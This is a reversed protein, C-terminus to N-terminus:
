LADEEEDEDGDEEDDEYLLNENKPMDEDIEEEVFSFEEEDDDDEDLHQENAVQFEDLDERDAIIEKAEDLMEEAVLVPVGGIASDGTLKRETRVDDLDGDGIVADIDHDNFLQCYHEAEELSRAVLVAAYGGHEQSTGFEEKKAM